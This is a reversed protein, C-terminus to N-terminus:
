SSYELANAVREPGTFAAVTDRPLGSRNVADAIVASVTPSIILGLCPDADDPQEGTQLYLTHPNKRGTRVKM